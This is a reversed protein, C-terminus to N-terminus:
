GGVNQGPIRAVIFDRLLLGSADFDTLYVVSGGQTKADRLPGAKDDLTLVVADFARAGLGVDTENKYLRSKKM